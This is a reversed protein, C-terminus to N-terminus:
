RSEQFSARELAPSNLISLMGYHVALSFLRQSSRLSTAIEFCIIVCGGLPPSIINKPTNNFNKM